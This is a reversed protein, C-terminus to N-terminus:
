KHKASKEDHVPLELYPRWLGRICGRVYEFAEDGQSLRSLARTQQEAGARVRQLLRKLAASIAPDMEFDDELVGIVMEQWKSVNDTTM